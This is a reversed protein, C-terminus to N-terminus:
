TNKKKKTTKKTTKKKSDEKPKPLYAEMAKVVQNGLREMDPLELEFLEKLPMSKKVKLPNAEDFPAFKLTSAWIGYAIYEQQGNMLGQLLQNETIGLKNRLVAFNRLKFECNWKEGFLDIEIKPTVLKELTM